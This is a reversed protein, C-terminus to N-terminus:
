VGAGNGNGKQNDNGFPIQTKEQRQGHAVGLIEEEFSTLLGQYATAPAVLAPGPRAVGDQMQAGGSMASGVVLVVAAVASCCGKAMSKM